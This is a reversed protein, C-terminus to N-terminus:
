SLRAFPNPGRAREAVVVAAFVCSSAPVALITNVLM